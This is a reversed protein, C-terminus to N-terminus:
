SALKLDNDQFSSTASVCVTSYLTVSPCISPSDSTHHLNFSYARRLKMAPGHFNIIQDKVDRANYKVDYQALSPFTIIFRETCHFAMCDHASNQSWFFKFQPGQSRFNPTIVM